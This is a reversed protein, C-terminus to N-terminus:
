LGRCRARDDPWGSYRTQQLKCVGHCSRRKKLDILKAVGSQTGYAAQQKEEDVSICTISEKELKATKVQDQLAGRLVFWELHRQDQTGPKSVYKLLLDEAAKYDHAQFADFAKKMDGIYVSPPKSENVPKKEPKKEPQKKDEPKKKDPQKKVPDKAKSKSSNHISSEPLDSVFKKKEVPKTKQAPTEKQAKAVPKDSSSVFLWVLGIVALMAIVFCAGVVPILWVPPSKKPRRNLPSVPQSGQKKSGTDIKFESFPQNSNPNSM